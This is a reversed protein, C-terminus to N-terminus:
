AGIAGFQLMPVQKLFRPKKNPSKRYPQPRVMGAFFSLFVQSYYEIPTESFPPRWYPVRFLLIGM